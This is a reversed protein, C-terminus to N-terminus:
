YKKRQLIFTIGMAYGSRCKSHGEGRGRSRVNVMSIGVIKKNKKSAVEGVQLVGRPM